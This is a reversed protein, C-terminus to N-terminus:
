INNNIAHAGIGREFSVENGDENTLRLANNSTSIDKKPTAYSNQTSEWDYETLYTYDEM